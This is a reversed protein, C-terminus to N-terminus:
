SKVFLLNFGESLPPPKKNELINIQIGVNTILDPVVEIAPEM